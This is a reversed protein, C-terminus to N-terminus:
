KEAMVQEIDVQLVSSPVYGPYYKVVDGKRNILFSTPIGSIGGFGTLVSADAMAVPYNIKEQEILNKVGAPGTEDVSIGLMSFGKSSLKEQLKIFDPIEERCPPCWTAFFTVLLVKNKFDDSSIKKADAVASLSFSPMAKAALVPNGPLLLLLAALAVAKIKTM